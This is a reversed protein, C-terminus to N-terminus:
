LIGSHSPKKTYCVNLKNSSSSPNRKRFEEMIKQMILYIFPSLTMISFIVMISIWFSKRPDIRQPCKGDLVKIMKIAFYAGTNLKLINEINETSKQRYIQGNITLLPRDIYSQHTLDFQMFMQLWGNSDIYEFTINPNINIREDTFTANILCHYGNFNCQNSQIYDFHLCFVNANANLGNNVYQPWYLRYQAQEDELFLVYEILNDPDHSMVDILDDTKHIIWRNMPISQGCSGNTSSPSFQLCEFLINTNTAMTSSSFSSSSSIQHILLLDVM